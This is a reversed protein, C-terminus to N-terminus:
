PNNRHAWQEWISLRDVTNENKYTHGYYSPGLVFGSSGNLTLFCSFNVSSVVLQMARCGFVAVIPIKPHRGFGINRKMCADMVGLPAGM